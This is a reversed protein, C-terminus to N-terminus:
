TSIRTRLDISEARVPFREIDYHRRVDSIRREVAARVVDSILRAEIESRAEELTAPRAPAREGVLFIAYRGMAELPGLLTGPTASFVSEGLMGMQERTVPGLDGGSRDAGPRMSHLSAAAAFNSPSLTQM